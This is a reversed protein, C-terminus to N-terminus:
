INGHVAAIEDKYAAFMQEKNMSAWVSKDPIIQKIVFRFVSSNSNKLGCWFEDANNKFNADVTVSPYKLSIIGITVKDKAGHQLKLYHSASGYQKVYISAIELLTAQDAFSHIKRLEENQARLESTLQREKALADDRENIAVKLDEIQKLYKSVNIANNNNNNSSTAKSAQNNKLDTVVTAKDIKQKNNISPVSKNANSNKNATSTSASAIVQNNTPLAVSVSRPKDPGQALVVPTKESINTQVQNSKVKSIVSKKPTAPSNLQIPQLVQKAKQPGPLVKPISSDIRPKKASNNKETSILRKLSSISIIGKSDDFYKIQKESQNFTDIEHINEDETRALETKDDNAHEIAEHGNSLSHRAASETEIRKIVLQLDTQSQEITSDNNKSSFQQMYKASIRQCVEGKEVGRFKYKYHSM